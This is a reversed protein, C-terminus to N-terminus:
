KGDLQFVVTIQTEFKVPQGNLLYPRYKWQKVTEMTEPALMPSGFVPAVDEVNGNKDIVARMVVRGQVRKQSAREPYQPTVKKILLASAVVQPVSVPPPSSDPIRSLTPRSIPAGSASTSVPDADDSSTVCRLNPKDAGFSIQRLSAVASNLEESSKSMVTEGIYYERFRTFVLAIYLTGESATQKYDARYFHRGGYDIAYVDKVMKRNNQDLNVQAHIADSVFQQVTPSYVADYANLAMRSKESEPQQQDITLLTLSARSTHIAKVEGAAAPTTLRWGDPIVFSFGFCENSYVENEISGNEFALTDTFVTGTQRAFAGANSLVAVAALPIWIHKMSKRKVIHSIFPM